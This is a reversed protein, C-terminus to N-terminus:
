GSYFDRGETIMRLWVLIGIRMRDRVRGRERERRPGAKVPSSLVTTQFIAAKEDKSLKVEPQGKHLTKAVVSPLTEMRGPPCSLYADEDTAGGAGSEFRPKARRKWRGQSLPPLM